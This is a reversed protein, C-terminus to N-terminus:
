RLTSHEEDRAENVLLRAGPSFSATFTPLSKTTSTSSLAHLGWTNKQSAAANISHYLANATGLPLLIVKPPKYTPSTSTSLLSNVLDVIGGDGSALIIRLKVGQNAKPFLESSVLELISSASQTTHTNWNDRKYPYLADLIPSLVDHFFSTAKQHGSGTSLIIHTEDSDDERSTDLSPAKLPQKTVSVLRPPHGADENQELVVVAESTRDSSALNITFQKADEKSKDPSVENDTM